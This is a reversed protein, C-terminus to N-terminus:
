KLKAAIKATAQASPTILRRGPPMPTKSAM